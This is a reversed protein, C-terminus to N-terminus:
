LGQLSELFGQFDRAAGQVTASDGSLKFFWTKGPLSYIAALVRKDGNAFDVLTMLRGAPSVRRSQARLGEETLPGLGIQDRWRNVNPVLGGAEGDLVTVSLDGTRGGPGPVVFTAFRFGAGPKETWGAPTVWRVKGGEAPSAELTVDPMIPEKPVRYRSIEERGCAGLLLFVSFFLYRM